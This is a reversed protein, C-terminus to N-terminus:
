HISHRLEDVDVEQMSCDLIGDSDDFEVFAKNNDFPDFANIYGEQYYEHFVRDGVKFGKHKDTMNFKQM